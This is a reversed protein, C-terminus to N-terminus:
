SSVKNYTSSTVKQAQLSNQFFWGKLYYINLVTESATILSARANKWLIPLLTDYLCNIELVQLM